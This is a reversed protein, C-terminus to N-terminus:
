SCVRYKARHCQPWSEAFWVEARGAAGQQARDILSAIPFAAPHFLSCTSAGAQNRRKYELLGGAVPLLLAKGLLLPSWNAVNEVSASAAEKCRM